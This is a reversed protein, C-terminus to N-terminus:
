GSPQSPQPSLTVLPAGKEVRDGAKVHIRDVVSKHTARLENEMKMAEVVVLGEGVEVAQGESVEVRVVLGPMPAKVVGGAAVKRGQGTLAEIQRSRDDQVEIEFREGAAGLAWRPPRGDLQQCAVTWSDKGLLLHILPTGPIAAWHAELREGDVTVAGGDIDIVYTRSRLTVHYKM